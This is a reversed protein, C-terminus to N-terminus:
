SRARASSARPTCCRPTITAEGARQPPESLTDLNVAQYEVRFPNNFGKLKPVRQKLPM